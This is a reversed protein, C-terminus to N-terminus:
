SADRAALEERLTNVIKTLVNVNAGWEPSGGSYEMGLANLDAGTKGLVAGLRQAEQVLNSTANSAPPQQARQVPPPTAIAKQVEEGTEEPEKTHTPLHFLQLLAIRYAVSMAQATSRDAFDDALGPVVVSVSSGDPAYFDYQVELTTTKVYKNGVQKEAVQYNRVSPSAFVSYKNMLPSLHAVTGDIGRFAFPVGGKSEPALAGAEAAIAAIREFINMDKPPAEASVAGGNAALAEVEQLLEAKTMKGYDTM